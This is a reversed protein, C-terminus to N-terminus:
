TEIRARKAAHQRQTNSLAPLVRFNRARCDLRRNNIHDVHHTWQGDDGRESLRGFDRLRLGVAVLRSATYWRQGIFVRLDERGDDDERPILTLPEPDSGNAPAWVIEWDGKHGSDLRWHPSVTRVRWGGARVHPGAKKPPLQLLDLSGAMASGFHPAGQGAGYGQSPLM